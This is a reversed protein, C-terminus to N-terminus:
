RVRSAFRWPKTKLTHAKKSPDDKDPGFEVFNNYTTVDEYPTLDEDTDFRSPKKPRWEEPLAYSTSVATASAAMATGAVRMFRRRSLYLKEDTIESSPLDSAPRILM